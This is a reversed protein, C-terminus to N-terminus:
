NHQNMAYEIGHCIYDEITQVAKQLICDLERTEKRSFDELVYLSPRKSGRPRGIGIRLRHFDKSKTVSVISQLGRHGATGGGAKLKMAGFAIDLDDHIVLMSQIHSGYHKLIAGVTGGSRNMYTLPKAMLVDKQCIKCAIMQAHFKSYTSGGFKEAVSDVAMFGVNHRNAAYQLGPNGLGIILVM